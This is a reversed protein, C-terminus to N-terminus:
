ADAIDEAGIDARLKGTAQAREVLEGHDGDVRGERSGARCARAARGDGGLAARDDAMLEASCRMFGCFGEWGDPDDLAERAREALRDFRDDALAQLLDEKTPFHRYVTGVGVGAERAIEDIQADLGDSPSSSAPPMSSGSATAAPTPESPQGRGAPDRHPTKTTPAAM